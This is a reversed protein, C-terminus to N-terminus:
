VAPWHSLLILTPRKFRSKITQHKTEPSTWRIGWHKHKCCLEDLEAGECTRGSSVSEQILRLHNVWHALILVFRAFDAKIVHIFCIFSYFLVSTTRLSTPGVSRSSARSQPALLVLLYIFVESIMFWSQLYDVSCNWTPVITKKVLCGM